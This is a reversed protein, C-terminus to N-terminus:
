GPSNMLGTKDKEHITRFGTRGWAKSTSVTRSVRSGAIAM